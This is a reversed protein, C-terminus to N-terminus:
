ELSESFLQESEKDKLKFIDSTYIDTTKPTKKPIPSDIDTEPKDISSETENYSSGDLTVRITQGNNSKLKLEKGSGLLTMLKKIFEEDEEM